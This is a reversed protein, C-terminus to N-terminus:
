SLRSARSRASGFSGAYAAAGAHPGACPGPSWYAAPHPARGLNYPRAGRKRRQRTPPSRTTPSASDDLTPAIVAPSGRFAQPVIVTKAHACPTGTARSQRTRRRPPQERRSLTLDGPEHGRPQAVPLDRLPKDDRLTRGLGVHLVDARLKLTAGPGLDRCPEHLCCPLGIAPRNGLSSARDLLSRLGVRRSSSRPTAQGRHGQYDPGGNDGARHEPGCPGPM